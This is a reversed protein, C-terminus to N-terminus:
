FLPILWSPRPPFLIPLLVATDPTSVSCDTFSYELDALSRHGFLLQLFTHDPFFADGDGFKAPQYPTITHLRGNQWTLALFTRALNLRLQGSYGAMVSNALRAELVPAILQLFPALDAVRMYYSYPRHPKELEPALATYIPHGENISFLVSELPKVATQNWESAQRCLYRLLFLAIARLSHGPIAAIERVMYQPGFLSKNAEAYGVVTNTSKDIILYFTHAAPTHRHATLMEHQWVATTRLKSLLSGATHQAYLQQLLPLDAPTALRINYTLEAAQAQALRAPSFIYRRGGFLPVCMEYGFQRYYWAIGTIFQVWEGRAASKAHIHAMQQRVLGLRRYAEDTGVLEPRGINFPINEYQWQQSILGISSVINQQPDEVITFDVATTTPHQGSMLDHTWHALFYEPEDPNDNHIRFNFAALADADDPTAWRLWLNHALRQPLSLPASSPM